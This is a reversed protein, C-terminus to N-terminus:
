RCRRIIRAAQLMIYTRCISRKGRAPCNRQLCSSAEPSRLRGERKTAEGLFRSGARSQRARIRAALQLPLSREAARPVTGRRQDCFIGRHIAELIRRWHARRLNSGTDRGINLPAASQRQAIRQTRLDVGTSAPVPLELGAVQQVHPLRLELLKLVRPFAPAQGRKPATSPALWVRGGCRQRHGSQVQEREACRERIRAVPRMGVAPRHLFAGSTNCRRRARRSSRRRAQHRGGARTARSAARLGTPPKPRAYRTRRARPRTRSGQARRDLAPPPRDAVCVRAVRQNRPRSM